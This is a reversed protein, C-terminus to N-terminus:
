VSDAHFPYNNIYWWNPQIHQSSLSRTNMTAQNLEVFVMVQKLTDSLSGIESISFSRDIMHLREQIAGNKGTHVIPIGSNIAHTLAYCYTEKVSSLMFIAHVGSQRLTEVIHLEHYQGHFTIGRQSSLTRQMDLSDESVMGFVEARVDRVYQELAKLVHVFVKSGKRHSFEGLFAVTFNDQVPPIWLRSTDLGFDPHSATATKYTRLDGLMTRYSNYTFYSPFITLDSLLFLERTKSKDSESPEMEVSRNPDSPFLWQFDHVTVLVRIGLEHSEKMLDLISWAMGRLVMASHVHLVTRDSRQLYAHATAYDSTVVHEYMPFLLKLDDYYRETGGGVHGIHIIRGELRPKLGLRAWANMQARQVALLPVYGGESSPEFVAQENWENWATLTIFRDLSARACGFIVDEAMQLFGEYSPDFFMVTRHGPSLRGGSLRRPHNSWSYVLGPHQTFTLKLSAIDGYIDKLSFSTITTEMISKQEPSVRLSDYMSLDMHVESYEPNWIKFIHEDFADFIREGFGRARSFWKTRQVFGPQFLIEGALERLQTGDDFPGNFKFFSIGGLGARVAETNWTRILNRIQRENKKPTRYLIVVPKNNYRIYRKLKFFQLLYKFHRVQTKRDGFSHKLTINRSSGDWNKTWDENAYCFCFPLNPEGDLLMMEAPRNLILKESLFYHYWIFGGVGFHKALVRMKRRHSYSLMNYYSIDPHPRLTRLPGVFEPTQNLLNWETFGNGYIVDNEPIAHYQPYVVALVKVSASYDRPSTHLWYLVIATLYLWTRARSSRACRPVNKLHWISGTVRRLKSLRQWYSVKSFAHFISAHGGLWRM